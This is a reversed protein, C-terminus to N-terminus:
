GRRVRPSLALRDINLADQLADDGFFTVSTDTEDAKMVGTGVRVWAPRGLCGRPISVTAVNADRDVSRQVGTCRVNRGNGRTFDFAPYSKDTGLRQMVWYNHTGTRIDYIVIGSDVTIDNLTTALVVRRAQHDVSVNIVDTDTNEPSNVLDGEQGEGTNPDFTDTETQVDGVNDDHTWTAASASTMSTVTLVAAGALAALARSPHIM